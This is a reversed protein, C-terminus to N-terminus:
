AAGGVSDPSPPIRRGLVQAAIQDSLERATTRLATSATRKETVIQALAETVRRDAQARAEAVIENEKALARARAQQRLTGVHHRAQLLRQEIKAMQEAAAGDLESAEHRARTSTQEREELYGVLPKWLILHLSVVAVIFPVALLVAHIPDPIIEM